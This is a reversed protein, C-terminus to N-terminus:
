VVYVSNLVEALLESDRDLDWGAAAAQRRRGGKLLDTRCPRSPCIVISSDKRTKGRM